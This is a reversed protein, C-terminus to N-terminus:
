KGRDTKGETKKGEDIYNKKGKHTCLKNQM